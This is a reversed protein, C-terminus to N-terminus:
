VLTSFWCISLQSFEFLMETFEIKHFALGCRRLKNRLTANYKISSEQIVSAVTRGGVVCSRLENVGVFVAVKFDDEVM